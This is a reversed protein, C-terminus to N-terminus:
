TITGQVFRKARSVRSAPRSAGNALSDHSFRVYGHSRRPSRAAVLRPDEAGIGAVRRRALRVREVPLVQGLSLRTKRDSEVQRGLGPEVAVMREGAALDALDPDRDRM